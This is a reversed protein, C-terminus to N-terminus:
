RARLFCRCPLGGRGAFYDVQHGEQDVLVGPSGAVIHRKKTARSKSRGRRGRQSKAGARRYYKAPMMAAAFAVLNGDLADNVFAAPIVAAIDQRERRQKGRSQFADDPGYGLLPHPHMTSPAGIPSARCRCLRLEDSRHMTSQLLSSVTERSDELSKAATSRVFSPAHAVQMDIETMLNDARKSPQVSVEVRMCYQQILLRLSRLKGCAFDRLAM